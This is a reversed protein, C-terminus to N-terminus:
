RLLDRESLRDLLDLDLRLLLLLVDCLPLLPPPLDVALPLAAAPLLDTRLLLWLLSRPAPTLCPAPSPPPLPKPLVLDGPQRALGLDREGTSVPRRLRDRDGLIRPGGM